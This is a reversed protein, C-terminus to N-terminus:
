PAASAATPWRRRAAALADAVREGAIFRRAFRGERMGYRSALRKVTASAALTHFLARSLPEIM